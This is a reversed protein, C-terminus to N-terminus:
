VNQVGPISNSFKLRAKWNVSERKVGIQSDQIESELECEADCNKWRTIQISATFCPEAYGFLFFICLYLIICLLYM